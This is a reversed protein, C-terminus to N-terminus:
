RSIIICRTGLKNILHFLTSQFCIRSKLIFVVFYCVICMKNINKSSSALHRLMQNDNSERLIYRRKQNAWIGRTIRFLWSTRFLNPLHKSIRFLVDISFPAVSFDQPRPKTTKTFCYFWTSFPPVAKRLSPSTASSSGWLMALVALM